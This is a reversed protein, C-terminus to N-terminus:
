GARLPLIKLRVIQEYRALPLCFLGALFLRTFHKMRGEKIKTQPRQPEEELYSCSSSFCSAANISATGCVTHFTTHRSDCV